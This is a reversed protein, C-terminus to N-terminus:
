IMFWQTTSWNHVHGFHWWANEKKQISKKLPCHSSVVISYAYLKITDFPPTKHASNRFPIHNKVKRSTCLTKGFSIIFFSGHWTLRSQWCFDITTNKARPNDDCCIFKVHVSTDTLSKVWPFTISHFASLGTNNDMKLNREFTLIDCCTCGQWIFIHILNNHVHITCTGCIICKRISWQM